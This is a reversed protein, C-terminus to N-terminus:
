EDQAIKTLIAELVGGGVALAKESILSCVEPNARPDVDGIKMGKHVPIDDHLLGRLVGYFPAPVDQEGIRALVDGKRVIEGIQMTSHMTGDVPARIVRENSYNLVREPIGTDPLASGTWFVRGLTFGRNTEIVAHCDIGVMFGPGLGIVFSGTDLNNESITKRMRGDVIIDPKYKERIEAQPDVIVPIKNNALAADIEPIGNVRVASIGEISVQGSFVAQAFSVTRRVVLPQPLETVLVDWGARHIRAIVGSALDGGGRVLVRM